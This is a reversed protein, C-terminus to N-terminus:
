ATPLSISFKAGQGLQGVALITGGHAEVISKAIALGLGSAGGQRSDDARYFREFIYPLKEAAIGSGTDAVTIVVSSPEQMECHIRITDQAVTYRLANFILNGLVQVIRDPDVYIEPISGSVDQSM